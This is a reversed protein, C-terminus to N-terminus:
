SGNSIPIELPMEIIPDHETKGRDPTEPLSCGSHTKNDFGAAVGKTPWRISSGSGWLIQCENKLLNLRAIRFRAFPQKFARAYM